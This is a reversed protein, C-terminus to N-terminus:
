RWPDASSRTKSREVLLVSSFKPAGRNKVTRAAARPLIWTQRECSKQFQSIIRHALRLLKGICKVVFKAVIHEPSKVRMRFMKYSISARPLGQITSVGFESCQEVMWIPAKGANPQRQSARSTSPTAKEM